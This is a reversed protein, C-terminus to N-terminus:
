ETLAKDKAACRVGRTVAHDSINLGGGIHRNGDEATREDDTILMHKQSFAAPSSLM